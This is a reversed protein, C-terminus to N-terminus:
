PKEKRLTLSTFGGFQLPIENEKELISKIKELKNQDHYGIIGKGEGSVDTFDPMGVKKIAYRMLDVASCDDSLNELFLSHLIVAGGRCGARNLRGRPIIHKRSTGHSSKGDNNIVYRRLSFLREPTRRYMYKDPSRSDRYRSDRSYKDNDKTRRRDYYKDDHKYDYDRERRHQDTNRDFIRSRFHRYDSNYDSHFNRRFGRYRERDFYDDRSRSYKRERNFYSDSRRRYSKDDSGM